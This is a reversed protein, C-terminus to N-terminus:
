VKKEKKVSHYYLASFIIVASMAAIASYAILPHDELRKNYIGYLAWSVSIGLFPNIFKHILWATLITAVGLVGITIIVQLNIDPVFNKAVLLTTLNAITAICIWGLYVGFFLKFLTPGEKSLQKNILALVTLLGLMVLVSGTMYEFQWLIVWSANLLCSSSFLFNQTVSVQKYKKFFQVVLFVTLLTYIIGWISFTQSSPTLLNDYKDSLERISKGGLNTTVSLYNVYLALVFSVINLLKISVSKKM